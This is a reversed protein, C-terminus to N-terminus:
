AGGPPAPSRFKEAMWAVGYEVIDAAAFLESRAGGVV